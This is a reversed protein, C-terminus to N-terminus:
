SKIEEYIRLFNNGMIKEIEKNKYGRKKLKTSIIMHNTCDSMQKPLCDVGDYDSGIGVFDVGALKIIYEIHDIYMDINPSILNLKKQLFSQKEIWKKDKNNYKKEILSIEKNYKKLLIKEKKSYSPDIFYPYLNVFIVGKKKKIALIQDDNLNRYHPCLADVCSHSAIFPKTTDRFIDWFSKQGIHSVDIIVQNENCLKLVELGFKTLGPKKLKDKNYLEDYASSALSTSYNWTPGIYLLGKEIFYMLNDINSELCEGGEIAFPAALISNKLCYDLDSKSRVVKLHKSEKEIEFLKDLLQKARYFAKKKLYQKTIWIVFVELNIKGKILRPIDSHGSDTKKTIDEGLIARQLIDNHLDAVFM